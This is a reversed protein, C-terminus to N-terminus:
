AVEINKVPKPKAEEKKLLTLKLIGDAYTAEIEDTNITSGITFKREFQQYGFEKRLYTTDNHPANSSIILTQNEVKILFDEKKLGPAALELTFGDKNESINVRPSSKPAQAEHMEHNNNMCSNVLHRPYPRLKVLM